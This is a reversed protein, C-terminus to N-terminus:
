KGHSFPRKFYHILRGENDAVVSVLEWGEKELKDWAKTENGAQDAKDEFLGTRGLYTIAGGSLKCHEFAQAM